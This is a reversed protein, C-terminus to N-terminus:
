SKGKGQLEDLQQEFNIQSLMANASVRRKDAEPIELEEIQRAVLQHNIEPMGVQGPDLKFLRVPRLYLEAPLPDPDAKDLEKLKAAKMKLDGAVALDRSTTVSRKAILYLDDLDEAYKHRHAKKNINRDTNFLNFAEDFMEAARSYKLSYPPNTFFAITNKRGYKRDMANMQSLAELYVSEEKKINNKCGDLIWDELIRYTNYHSCYRSTLNTNTM